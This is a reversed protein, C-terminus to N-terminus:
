KIIRWKRLLEKIRLSLPKTVGPEAYYAETDAYRELYKDVRKLFQASGYEKGSAARLNAREEAIVYWTVLAIGATMVAIPAACGEPKAPLYFGYTSIGNTMAKFTEGVSTLNYFCKYASYEIAVFIGIVYVILAVIIIGKYSAKQYPNM